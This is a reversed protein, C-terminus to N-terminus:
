RDTVLYKQLYRKVDENEGDLNDIYKTKANVHAEGCSRFSKKALYKM